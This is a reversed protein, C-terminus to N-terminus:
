VEGDPRLHGGSQGRVIGAPIGTLRDPIGDVSGLHVKRRVGAPEVHGRGPEAPDTSRSGPLDEGLQVDRLDAVVVQPERVREPLTEPLLVTLSRHDGE